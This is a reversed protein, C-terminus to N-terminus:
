KEKKEDKKEDKEENKELDEPQQFDYMIRNRDTLYLPPIYQNKYSFIFSVSLYWDINNFDVLQFNENYISIELANISDINIKYRTDTTNSFTQSNGVLCDVPIACLINNLSSNKFGNSILALNNARVYLIKTGTLNILHSSIIQNSRITDENEFGLIKLCNNEGNLLQFDGASSFTIKFTQSSYQLTINDSALEDNLFSILTTISYNGEPIVFSKIVSYPSLSYYFVNNRENLNYFSNTFKFHNLHIFCDVNNPIQISNKLIFKMNSKRNGNSSTYENSNIFIQEPQHITNHTFPM